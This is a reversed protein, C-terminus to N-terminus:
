VSSIKEEDILGPGGLMRWRVPPSTGLLPDPAQEWLDPATFNTVVFPGMHGVGVVKCEKKAKIVLSNHMAAAKGSVSTLADKEARPNPTQPSTSLSAAFNHYVFPDENSSYGDLKPNEISVESPTPKRSYSISSHTSSSDGTTEEEYLHAPVSAVSGAINDLLLPMPSVIAQYNLRPKTSDEDPLSRSTTPTAAYSKPCVESSDRRPILVNPTPSAESVSNLLPRTSSNEQYGSFSKGRESSMQNSESTTLLVSPQISSALMPNPLVYDTGLSSSQRAFSEPPSRSM